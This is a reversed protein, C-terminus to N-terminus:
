PRSVPQGHVRWSAALLALALALGGVEAAGPWALGVLRGALAMALFTLSVLIAAPRRPLAICLIALPSLLIFVTVGHLSRKAWEPLSGVWQIIEWTAGISAPRACTRRTGAAACARGAGDITVSLGVTDGPSFEALFGAFRQDVLDLRAETARLRPRVVLDDGDAGIMVIERKSDDVIHYLAALSAPADAAVFRLHLPRGQALADRVADTDTLRWSPTPIGGVDASLIRGSWPAYYEREPVWHAFYTGDTAVPQLLWGTLGVTAVPFVVAAAVLLWSRRRLGFQMAGFFAAGFGAGLGNSLIDQLTAYRGPVFVQTVEIGASLAFGLLIAKPVSRGQLVFFVGAPAFLLINRIFDAGSLDDCLICLPRVTLPESVVPTFTLVATLLGWLALGIRANRQWRTLPM